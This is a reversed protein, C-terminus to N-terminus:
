HCTNGQPPIDTQPIQVYRWLYRWKPPIDHYRTVRCLVVFFGSYSYVVRAKSRESVTHFASTTQGSPISGGVRLKSPQSCRFIGVYGM